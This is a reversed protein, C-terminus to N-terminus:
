PHPGDSNSLYSDKEFAGVFVQLPLFIKEFPESLLGVPLFRSMWLGPHSRLHFTGTGTERLAIFKDLLCIMVWTGMEQFNRFKENEPTM